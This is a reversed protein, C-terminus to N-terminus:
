KNLNIKELERLVYQWFADIPYAKALDEDINGYMRHFNINIQKLTLDKNEAIFKNIVRKRNESNITDYRVMKYFIIFVVLIVLGGVIWTGLLAM